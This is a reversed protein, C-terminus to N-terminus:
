VLRQCTVRCTATLQTMEVHSLDARDSTRVVRPLSQPRLMTSLVPSAAAHGNM